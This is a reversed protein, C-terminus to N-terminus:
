IREFRKCCDKRFLCCFCARKQLYYGFLNTIKVEVFCYGHL